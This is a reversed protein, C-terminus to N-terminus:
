PWQELFGLRYALTGKPICGLKKDVVSMNARKKKSPHLSSFSKHTTNHFM